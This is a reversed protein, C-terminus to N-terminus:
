ILWQEHVVVNYPPAIFSGVDNNSFPLSERQLTSFNFPLGHEFISRKRLHGCIPAYKLSWTKM